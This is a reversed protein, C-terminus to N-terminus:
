KKLFEAVCLPVFSAWNVPYPTLEKVLSSSIHRYKPSAFLLVTEFHGSLVKNTIFISEELGVDSVGRLGRVLCFYANKKMYDALLEQSSDIDINKIHKTSEKVFSFRQEATFQYKKNKSSSLVVVLKDCLNSAREIIDLHGLTIPDFSGAYVLTKM